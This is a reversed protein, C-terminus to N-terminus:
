NLYIIPYNSYLFKTKNGNVIVNNNVVVEKGQEKSVPKETVTVKFEEKDDIIITFPKGIKSLVHHLIYWGPDDGTSRGKTSLGIYSHNEGEIKSLYSFYIRFEEQNSNKEIIQNIPTKYDGVKIYVNEKLKGEKDIFLKYAESTKDVVFMVKQIPMLFTHEGNNKNCSIFIIFFLFILINRM